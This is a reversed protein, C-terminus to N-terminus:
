KKPYFKVISSEDLLKNAKWAHGYVVEYTAPLKKNTRYVEYFKELQYLFGKGTMAKARGQLANRAGIHKLDYMIDKFTNYTLTYVDVDLVPDSFGCRILADGIDHMDIFQNVHSYQSFSALSARLEHLTSPGFTSFIFLGNSTLIKEIQVFVRDLDNCWQLSLNSWVMDISNEVLPIAEMDACIFQQATKRSFAKLFHDRNKEEAKKLMDYAFDLYILDHPKYTDKLDPGANGPGCGLDLINDPNNKLLKLRLFMEELVHQQLVASDQYLASAKNFSAQVRKKDIHNQTM